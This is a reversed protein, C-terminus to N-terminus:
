AAMSLSGALTEQYLWPVWLEPAKAVADSNDQLANLYEFINVDNRAATHILSMLKDGVRAGKLTKYFLSARRYRIVVKIARECISSDLPMGPVRLFQTLAKWHILMYRIANGLGSNHEVSHHQWQNNLWVWLADMVPQSHQQHYLLREDASLNNNKCFAEHRYVDAICEIVFGCQIKFDDLLEYFKRRGHVLCFGIVLKVLLSEDLDRLNNQNLGDRMTLLESQSERKKLLAEVEEAAYRQNTYFLHIVYPGCECVLATSHVGKRTAPNKDKMVELIRHPTDDYILLGSQAALYELVEYVPAIVKEVEAMKDFQTADPLPVGQNAQITQIRHFPLGMYYHSIAIASKASADYKPANKFELPIDATYITSCLHCRLKEVEYRTGSVLPQGSLLVFRGSQYGGLKGPPKCDKCQPCIDGIKLTSHSLFETECGSYDDFGYRGHNASESWQPAKRKKKKSNSSPNTEQPNDAEKKAADEGIADDPNGAPKEDIGSGSEPDKKKETKFGFLGKLKKISLKARELQQQIWVTFHILELFLKLDKKSLQDEEIRQTLADIEDRTMHIPEPNKNNTKM